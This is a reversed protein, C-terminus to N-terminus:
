FGQQRVTACSTVHNRPKCIILKSKRRQSSYRRETRLIKCPGACNWPQCAASFTSILKRVMRSENTPNQWDSRSLSLSLSLSGKQCGGEPPTIRTPSLSLSLSLYPSFFFSLWLRLSLWLSPSHSPPPAPCRCPCLCLSPSGQLSLPLTNLPSGGRSWRSCGRICPCALISPPKGCFVSLSRCLVRLDHLSRPPCPGPALRPSRRLVLLPTSTSSSM